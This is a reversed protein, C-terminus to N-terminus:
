FKVGFILEPVMRSNSGSTSAAEGYTDITAYTGGSITIVVNSSDSAQAFKCTRSSQTIKGQSPLMNQENFTHNTNDNIMSKTILYPIYGFGGEAKFYLIFADCDDSNDITVDGASFPDNPHENEWLKKTSIAGDLGSADKSMEVLGLELAQKISRSNEQCRGITGALAIISSKLSM